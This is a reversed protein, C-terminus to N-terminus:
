QLRVGEREPPAPRPVQAQPLDLRRGLWAKADADLNTGSWAPTGDLAAIVMRDGPVILQQLVATLDRVDQNVHLFWTSDLARHSGARTLADFLPSYDHSGANLSFCAVYMPM